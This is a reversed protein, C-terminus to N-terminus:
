PADPDLHDGLQYQTEDWLGGEGRKVAGDLFSQMSEYQRELVTVDGFATYLDWPTLITVDGWVASAVPPVYGMKGVINPSVLPPIGGQLKQDVAVNELWGALMDNTDYLFSAVKGFVQLDGTWGLREDRQDGSLLCPHTIPDLSSQAEYLM